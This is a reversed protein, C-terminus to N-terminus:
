LSVESQSFHRVMMLFQKAKDFQRELTIKIDDHRVINSALKATLVEPIFYNLIILVWILGYLPFLAQFRIYFAPDISFLYWRLLTM